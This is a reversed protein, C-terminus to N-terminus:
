LPFSFVVRGKLSSQPVLGWNRSDYSLPNDGLFFYFNQKFIYHSPPQNINTLKFGDREVWTKWVDDLLHCQDIEMGVYPVIISKAIGNTAAPRHISFHRGDTYFVEGPIAAIRKVSYEAMTPHQFVLIDGMSPSLFSSTFSVYSRIVYPFKAVVIVSGAKITPEMSNTPVYYFDVFLLKMILCVTAIAVTLNLLRNRRSPMRNMDSDSFYLIRASMGPTM